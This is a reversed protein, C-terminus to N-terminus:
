KGKKSQIEGVLLFFPVFSLGFCIFGAIQPGAADNLVATLFFDQLPGTWDGPLAEGASGSGEAASSQLFALGWFMLCVDLGLLAAIRMARRAAVRSRGGRGMVYAILCAFFALPVFGLLGGM